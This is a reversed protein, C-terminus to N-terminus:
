STTAQPARAAEGAAAPEAAPEGLAELVRPHVIRGGRAVLTGRTIEDELDIVLAADRLLHQLFSSINRAYMQSAHHPVSAPLNTPGLVTAGNLVVTEDPRTVECNGGQGAALDVVVSGPAMAEVMERTVLV